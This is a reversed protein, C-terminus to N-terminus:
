LNDDDYFHYYEEVKFPTLFYRILLDQLPETLKLPQSSLVFGEETAKNGVRHLAVTHIAQAEFVPM